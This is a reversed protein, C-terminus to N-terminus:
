STARALVTATVAVLPVVLTVAWELPQARESLVTDPMDGTYGRALMAGYVREGRQLCRVTLAGASRAAARMQWIWSPDDGRAVRAIQMRRLEELVVQFYRLALGAIATLQSPCRLRTLGALIAPPKTTATLLGTALVALTAKAAIGGAAQLGARSLPVGLLHTKAGGGVFPLLVIFLIFPIEVALRQGLLRAPAKAAIAVAALLAVDVGYAWWGHRPVLAVAFVFLITALVKCEPAVRHAATEVEVTLDINHTATV